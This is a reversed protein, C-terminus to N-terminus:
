RWHPEHMIIITVMLYGECVDIEKNFVWLRVMTQSPIIRIRINEINPFGDTRYIPTM